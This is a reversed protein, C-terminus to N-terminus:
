TRPECTRKLEEGTRGSPQRLNLVKETAGTAECLPPFRRPSPMTEFSPWWVEPPRLEAKSTRRAWQQLVRSM